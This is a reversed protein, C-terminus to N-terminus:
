QTTPQFGDRSKYSATNLTKYGVLIHDNIELRKGTGTAIGMGTKFKLNRNELKGSM